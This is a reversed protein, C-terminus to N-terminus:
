TEVKEMGFATVVRIASLAQEAFGASQSYAILNKTTGSTLIQNLLAGVTMLFPTAGMICLTLAWGKTLGVVIGSIGTCLSLTM